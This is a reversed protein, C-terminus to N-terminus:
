FLVEQKPVSLMNHKPGTEILSTLSENGLIRQHAIEICPVTNLMLANGRSTEKDNSRILLQSYNKEVCEHAGVWTGGKTMLVEEKGTTPNYKTAYDSSVVMAYEASAYIFKNREMANFPEFKATPVTTSLYILRGEDIRKTLDQKKSKRLLGDSLFVISTGNLEEARDEAITDVGKAGGSSITYGEDIAKEVFRQTFLKAVSDNAIDRSGVVACAKSELLSLNGRYFLFPPRNAKLKKKLFSPYGTISARTVISINNSYLFDVESALTDKRMLLSYIRDSFNKVRCNKLFQTSISSALLDETENKSFGLLSSPTLKNHFLMQALCEYSLASIPSITKEKDLALRSCLLLIVYDDNSLNMKLLDELSIM